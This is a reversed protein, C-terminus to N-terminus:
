PLYVHRWLLKILYMRVQRSVDLNLTRLSRSPYVVGPPLVIRILTQMVGRLGSIVTKSMFFLVKLMKSSVHGMSGFMLILFVWFVSFYEWKKCSMVQWVGVRVQKSTPTLPYIEGSFLVLSFVRCLNQLGSMLSLFKLSFM